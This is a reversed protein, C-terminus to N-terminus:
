VTASLFPCSVAAPPWPHFFHQPEKQLSLSLYSCFCPCWLSLVHKQPLVLFALRLSHQPHFQVPLLGLPLSFFFVSPHLLFPCSTLQQSLPHHLPYLSPAVTTVTNFFFGMMVAKTFNAIGFELQRSVPTDKIKIKACINQSNTASVQM